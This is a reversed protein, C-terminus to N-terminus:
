FQVALVNMADDLMQEFTNVRGSAFWSARAAQLCAFAAGVIASARPDDGASENSGIRIAVRGILLQQVRQM